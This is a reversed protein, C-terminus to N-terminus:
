MAVSGLRIEVSPGSGPRCAVSKLPQFASNASEIKPVRARETRNAVMSATESQLGLTPAPTSGGVSRSRVDSVQLGDSMMFSTSSAM